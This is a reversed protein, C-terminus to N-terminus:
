PANITIFLDSANSLAEDSVSNLMNQRGDLCWRSMFYVDDRVM